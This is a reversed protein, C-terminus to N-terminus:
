MKRKRFGSSLRVAIGIAPTKYRETDTFVESFDLQNLSKGADFRTYTLYVGLQGVSEERLFELGFTLSWYNFTATEKQELELGESDLYNGKATQNSFHYKPIVVFQGLDDDIIFKPGVGFVWAWFDLDLNSRFDIEADRNIDDFYADNDGGFYIGYNVDLAIFKYSIPEAGLSLFYYSSLEEFQEEFYGGFEVYAEPPRLQSIGFNFSLLTLLTLILKMLSRREFKIGLSKQNPWCYKLLKLSTTWNTIRSVDKYFILLIFVNTGIAKPTFM